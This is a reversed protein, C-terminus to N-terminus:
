ALEWATLHRHVVSLASGAHQPATISGTLSIRNAASVSLGVAFLTVSFPYATGPANIINQNQAQMISTDMVSGGTGSGLNKLLFTISLSEVPNTFATGSVRAIALFFASVRSTWSTELLLLETPSLQVGAASSANAVTWTTVGPALQNKNTIIQVSPPFTGPIIKTGSIGAGPFAGPASIDTDRIQGTLALKSYAIAAGPAINADSLNGNVLAYLTGIDDDLEGDVIDLKGNAVEGQYSDSGTAKIPRPTFGM